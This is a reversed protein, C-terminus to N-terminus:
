KEFLSVTVYRDMFLGTSLNIVKATWYSNHQKNKIVRLNQKPKIQIIIQTTSVRVTVSKEKRRLTITGSYCLKVHLAWRLPGTYWIHTCINLATEFMHSPFEIIQFKGWNWGTYLFNPSENGVLFPCQSRVTHVKIFFSVNNYVCCFKRECKVDQVYKEM